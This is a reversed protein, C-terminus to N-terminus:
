PSPTGADSPPSKPIFRWPLHAVVCGGAPPPYSAGMVVRAACEV